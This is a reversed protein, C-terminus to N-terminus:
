LSIVKDRIEETTAIISQLQEDSIKVVSEEHQIIKLMGDEELSEPEGPIYTIEIDKFENNILSLDKLLDAFQSDGSFNNIIILLKELIIKQEGIREALNPHPSNKAVQTALYLGEIWM